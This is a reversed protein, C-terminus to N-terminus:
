EDGDEITERNEIRGLLARLQRYHRAAEAAKGEALQVQLAAFRIERQIAPEYERLMQDVVQRDGGLLQRAM